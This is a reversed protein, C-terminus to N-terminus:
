HTRINYSRESSKFASLEDLRRVNVLLTLKFVQRQQRWKSSTILDLTYAKLTNL